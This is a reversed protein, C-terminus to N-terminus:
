TYPAMTTFAAIVTDSAFACFRSRETFQGALKRPFVSKRTRNCAYPRRQPLLDVIDERPTLPIEVESKVYCPILTRTRRSNATHLLVRVLRGASRVPVPFIEHTSVSRIATTDALANTLRMSGAHFTLCEGPGDRGHELAKLLAPQQRNVLGPHVVVPDQQDVVVVVAFGIELIDDGSALRRGLEARREAKGVAHLGEAINLLPHSIIRLLVLGDIGGDGVGIHLHVQQGPGVVLLHREVLQDVQHAGPLGGDDLRGATRANRDGRAAMGAIRDLDAVKLYRLRGIPADHSRADCIKFDAVDGDGLAARMGDMQVVDRVRRQEVDLGVGVGAATDIDGGGAGVRGAVIDADGVALEPAVIDAHVDVGAGIAVADVVDRDVATVELGVVVDAGANRQIGFIAAADLVDIDALIGNRRDDQAAIAEEIRRWARRPILASGTHEDAPIHLTDGDACVEAAIRQARGRRLASGAVRNTHHDEANVLDACLARLLNRQLAAGEAAILMQRRHDRQARRHRHALRLRHMDDGLRDAQVDGPDRHVACGNGRLGTMGVVKMM